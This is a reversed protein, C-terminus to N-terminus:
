SGSVLPWLGDGGPAYPKGGVDRSITSQVQGGRAQWAGTAPSPRFGAYVAILLAFVAASGAGMFLWARRPTAGVAISRDHLDLQEMVARTHARADVDVPIAAKVDAILTRLTQDQERCRHCRAVHARFRETEEWPLSGDFLRVFEEDTPCPTM